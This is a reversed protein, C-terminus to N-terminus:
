NTPVARKPIHAAINDAVKSAIKKVNRDLDHGALVFKGAAVYPNVTIVAGPMKGSDAQTDLEYLQKPTGHSLDDVSIILQMDTQGSGFGIAARRLRNGEGVHTFVGRVLLGETPVADRPALRRADLNRKVLEKLIFESMLAVLKQAEAAPDEKGRLKSVARRLPGSNESGSQLPAPEPKIDSAELEFDMVYIMEPKTVPGAAMDREASIKAGSCGFLLLCLFFIIHKKLINAKPDM